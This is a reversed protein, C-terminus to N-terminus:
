KERWYFHNPTLIGSLPVDWAQAKLYEFRQFDYAVGILLPRTVGELSRDYYGAGMGLRTGQSDFSVLPLFIIDLEQPDIALSRNVDPEPINFRNNKFPTAPTAPLFDLLKDERLSPFYCFKGHYPASHWLINLDIEGNASYYLAIKKAQHYRPSSAIKKCVQASAKQRYHFPLRSRVQKYGERIIEKYRDVM